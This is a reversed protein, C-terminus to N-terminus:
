HHLFEQYRCCTKCECRSCNVGRFEVLFLSAEFFAANNHRLNEVYWVVNRLIKQVLGLADDYNRADLFQRESNASLVSAAGHNAAGALVEASSPSGRRHVSEFTGADAKLDASFSSVQDQQDHIGSAHVGDEAALHLQAAISGNGCAWNSAGSGRISVSPHASLDQTAFMGAHWFRAAMEDVDQLLM